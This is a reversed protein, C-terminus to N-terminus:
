KYQWIFGHSSKTKGACCNSIVRKDFGFSRYIDSLCQWEKIFLGSLSYQLIAKSNGWISGTKKLGLAYAHKENGKRTAWELNAAECNAKNGDKHNVEPLSGPNPIFHIAVLRHLYFSKKISNKSLYAQLYGIGNNKCKKIQEPMFQKYGTGKFKPLSKVTGMDGILYLGEYGIIPVFIEIMTLYNQYHQM